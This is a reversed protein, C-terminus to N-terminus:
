HRQERGQCRSIFYCHDRMKSISKVHNDFKENCMHCVDANLNSKILSGFCNLCYFVGKRKSQVENSLASLKTAALYHSLIM